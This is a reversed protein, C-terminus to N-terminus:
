EYKVAGIEYLQQAYDDRTFSLKKNGIPIMARMSRDVVDKMEPPLDHYTIKESTPTDAKRPASALSPRDREPNEFKDRFFSKVRKEVAELRKKLSWHPYEKGIRIDEREAYTVMSANDSTNNNYWDRNRDLFEQAEPTIKSNAAVKLQLDKFSEMEQKLEHYKKEYDEAAEINGETIADRKQKLLKDSQADNMRDVLLKNAKFMDTSAKKLEQLEKKQADIKEIMKSRAVFESAGIWTQPEGEYEKKPKWGKNMALQEIDSPPQSPSTNKNYENAEKAAETTKNRETKEFAESPNTPEVKEPLAPAADSIKTPM